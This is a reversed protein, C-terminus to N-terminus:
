LLLSLSLSLLVLSLSLLREEVSRELVGLHEDRIHEVALLAEAGVLINTSDYCLLETM